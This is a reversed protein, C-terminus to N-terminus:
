NKERVEGKLFLSHVGHLTNARLTISKEQHGPKGASNFRVTVAGSKGPAIPEGPYDAVTCGCSANAASIILPKKGENTFSFARTVTAGEDIAGFDFVTDTFVMKALESLAVSDIGAASRPNSVIDAPLLDGNTKPKPAEQCGLASLLLGASLRAFFHRMATDMM